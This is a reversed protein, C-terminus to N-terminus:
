LLNMIHRLQIAMLVDTLFLCSAINNKNVYIFYIALLNTIINRQYCKWNFKKKFMTGSILLIMLALFGCKLYKNIYNTSLLIGFIIRVTLCLFYMQNSYEPFTLQTDFYKIM